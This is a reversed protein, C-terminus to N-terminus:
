KHKKYLIESIKATYGGNDENIEFNFEYDLGEEKSYRKDYVNSYPFSSNVDPIIVNYYLDDDLGDIINTIETYGNQHIFELYDNDFCRVKYNTDPDFTKVIPFVFARCGLSLEITFMDVETGIELGQEKVFKNENSLEGLSVFEDSAAADDSVRDRFLYISGGTLMLVAICAAMSRMFYLRKKNVFKDAEMLLEDDIFEMAAISKPIKM